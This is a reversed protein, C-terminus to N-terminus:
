RVENVTVQRRIYWAIAFALTGFFAVLPIQIFIADYFARVNEEQAASLSGTQIVAEGVGEIAAPAFLTVAVLSVAVFMLNVVGRM